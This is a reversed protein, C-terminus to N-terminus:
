AVSWGACVTIPLTSNNSLTLKLQHNVEFYHGFLPSQDANQRFMTAPNIGSTLNDNDYVIQDLCIARLPDSVVNTPEYGSLFLRDAHGAEAIVFNAEISGGAPVVIPGKAGIAVISKGGGAGVRACSGKIGPTAPLKVPVGRLITTTALREM